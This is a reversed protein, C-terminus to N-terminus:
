STMWQVAYYKCTCDVTEIKVTVYECILLVAVCKTPKFAHKLMAALEISENILM